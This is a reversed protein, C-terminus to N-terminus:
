WRYLQLEWSKQAGGWRLTQHQSPYPNQVCCLGYTLSYRIEQDMLHVM